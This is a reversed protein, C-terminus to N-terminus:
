VNASSSSFWRELEVAAGDEAFPATVADGAAVVVPLAQGMVVGRGAWELMELDNRGDGIALTDARDVGLRARLAELASAKTVGDPAIDLWASYGVVYNVGHLGLGEVVELFEEAGISPQRVVVRTAPDAVLEDISVHQVDGTLEGEPFPQTVRYGRGLEEVAFLLSPMREHMLRVVPSPDFTVVDVLEDPDLSATVAGNSFVHQVAGTLRLTRAVERSALMSRGTSLLVYAGSAQAAAVARCVRPSVTDEEAVTGDIDLAVLRPQWTM